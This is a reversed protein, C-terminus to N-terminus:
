CSWQRFHGHDGSICYAPSSATPLPLSPPSDSNTRHVLARAASRPPARAVAPSSVSAMPIRGDARRQLFRALTMLFQALLGTIVIMCGVYPIMWGTNSVISLTSMEGGTRPDRHYGTQYFTDGGYRYPNNMWTKVKRGVNRDSDVLQIDSSYNKPISTGPYDDKRVDILTVSYPKHYRAFRLSIEYEKGDLKIRDPPIEDSDAM